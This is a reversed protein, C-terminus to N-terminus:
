LTLGHVLLLFRIPNRKAAAATATIFAICVCFHPYFLSHSRTSQPVAFLSFGFIAALQHRSIIVVSYNTNNNQKNSVRQYRERTIGNFIQVCVRVYVYLTLSHARSINYVHMTCVVAAACLAEFVFIDLM